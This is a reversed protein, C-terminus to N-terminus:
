EACSPVRALTELGYYWGSSQFLQPNRSLGSLETLDSSPKELGALLQGHEGLTQLVSTPQKGVNPYFSLNLLLNHRFVSKNEPTIKGESFGDDHVSVYVWESYRKWGDGDFDSVSARLIAGAPLNTAGRFDVSSSKCEHVSAAIYYTPASLQKHSAPASGDGVGLIAGALVIGVVVTIQLISM